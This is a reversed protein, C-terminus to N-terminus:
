GYQCVRERGSTRGIAEFDYTFDLAHEKRPLPSAQAPAAVTQSNFIKDMTQFTLATFGNDIFRRRLEFLADEDGVPAGAPASAAQDAAVAVSTAPATGTLLLALWAVSTKM